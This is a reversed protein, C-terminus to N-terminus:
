SPLSKRKGAEPDEAVREYITACVAGLRAGHGTGLLGHRGASEDMRDLTASHARAIDGVHLGDRRVV